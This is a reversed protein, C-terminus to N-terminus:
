GLDAHSMELVGRAAAGEARPRASSESSGDVFGLEAVVVREVDGIRVHAQALERRDGASLGYEIPVIEVRSEVPYKLGAVSVVEEGISWRVCIELVIESLHGYFDFASVLHIATATITCALLM